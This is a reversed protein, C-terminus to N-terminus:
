NIFILQYLDMQSEAAAELEAAARRSEQQLQETFRESQEMMLESVYSKAEKLEELFAGRM